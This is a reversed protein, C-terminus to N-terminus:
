RLTVRPHPTLSSTHASAILGALPQDMGLQDKAVRDATEYRGEASLAVLVGVVTMSFEGLRRSAPRAGGKSTSEM